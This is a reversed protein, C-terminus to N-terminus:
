FSKTRLCVSLCNALSLSIKFSEGTITSAFTDVEGINNCVQCRSSGCNYSSRKRELSYFKACILYSSLKKASQFSVMPPSTFVQKVTEEQYFLHELKKM